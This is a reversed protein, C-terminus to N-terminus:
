IKVSFPLKRRLEIQLSKIYKTSPVNWGKRSSHGECPTYNM